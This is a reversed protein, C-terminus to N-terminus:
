GGIHFAIHSYRQRDPESGQSASVHIHTYAKEFPPFQEYSKEETALKM